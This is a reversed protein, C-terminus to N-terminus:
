AKTSSLFLRASSSCSLKKLLNEGTLGSGIVSIRRNFDSDTQIAIELDVHVLEKDMLGPWEVVIASCSEAIEDFGLYDLEEAEGLRYLDMHVLPLRGPYENIITYTPSTIHYEEPVELGRAMGKVLTTKGAALDGSLAVVVRSDILAGLAQGINRTKEDSSSTAEFQM